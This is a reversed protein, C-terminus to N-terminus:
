NASVIREVASEIKMQVENKPVTTVIEWYEGVILRKYNQMNIHPYFNNVLGWALSSVVAKQEDPSKDELIELVLPAQLTYLKGLGYSRSEDASGSSDIIFDIYSMALQKSGLLSIIEAIVPYNNHIDSLDGLRKREDTGIPLLVRLFKEVFEKDFSEGWGLARKTALLCIRTEDEQPKTLLSQQNKCAASAQASLVLLAFITLIKPLM